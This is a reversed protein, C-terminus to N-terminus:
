VAAAWPQAEHGPAYSRNSQAANRNLLPRAYLPHKMSRVEHEVTVLVAGTQVDVVDQFRYEHQDTELTILGRELLWHYPGSFDALTIQIHNGDWAPQVADTERYALTFGRGISVRAEGANATAPAHLAERYFRAIRDATGVPAALAVEVMGLQIGPWAPSPAHCVIRNGWPCTTAIAGGEAEAYSFRTGALDREVRALRARLAHFDPLVIHTEGRLVQAPGSPLHFQGTGVNVWMNDVGTMLYPDRTLGLGSVYFLTALRQDPVFTNVHGFEVINGVDEVTRDYLAARAPQDM